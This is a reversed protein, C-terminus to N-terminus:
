ADVRREARILRRDPIGLREVIARGTRDFSEVSFRDLLRDRGLQGMAFLREPASLLQALAEALAPPDAPPVVLGTVRQEVSYPMEGVASVLVPLAAQMAQHAAICLGERRSPQLYLHLGALFDLPREVYGGLRFDGIGAHRASTELAAREAGEGGITVDFPVPSQFGNARLIALATVLVDYGKARHLRGLSGLRLTEGPHWPNCQPAQENAAFIPWTVLRDRGVGIRQVTLETVSQSDGIWLASLRQMARLLLRNAPKLFANHQWSVVPIGRLAGVIQGLLTARTLSTWIYDPQYDRMRANLWAFAAAHDRDGGQRVEAELGSALIPALARGDRRTLAFLRLDVGAARLVRSVEPVPLAAGGGEVSNILYAIRLKFPRPSAESTRKSTSHL